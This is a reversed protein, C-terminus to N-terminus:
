EEIENFELIFGPNWAYLGIGRCRNGALHLEPETAVDGTSFLDGGENREADLENYREVLRTLEETDTNESSYVLYGWPGGAPKVGIPMMECYAADSATADGVLENIKVAVEEISEHPERDSSFAFLFFLSLLPTFYYMNISETLLQETM